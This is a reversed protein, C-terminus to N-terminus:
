CSKRLNGLRWLCRCIKPRTLVLRIYVVLQHRTIVWASFASKRELLIHFYHHWITIISALFELSNNKNKVAEHFEPPIPLRWANGLLDLGGMGLPCADSWCVFSPCRYTILNLSIGRSIVSLFVDKWLKLDELVQSSLYREVKKTKRTVDWNTFMGTM